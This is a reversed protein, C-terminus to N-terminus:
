DFEVVGNERMLRVKHARNRVLLDGEANYTRDPFRRMAEPITEPNVGMAKSWRPNEKMLGDVGAKQKFQLHDKYNFQIRCSRIREGCEPCVKPTKECIYAQPGCNLCNWSIRKTM